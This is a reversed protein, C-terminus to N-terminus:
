KCFNEKLDHAVTVGKDIAQQLTECAKQKDGKKNFAYALGLYAENFNKDLAITKQYDNIASEHNELTELWYARSYYANIYNSDLKICQNLDSIAGEVDELMAKSLSRNYLAKLHHPEYNLIKTFQEAALAHRQKLSSILGKLFWVEHYDKNRKHLEHCYNQADELHNNKIALYAKFYLASDALEKVSSCSDLSALASEIDNKSFYYKARVYPNQSQGIQVSIILFIFFFKKLIGFIFILNIGGM